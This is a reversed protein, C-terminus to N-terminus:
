LPAADGFGARTKGTTDTMSAQVIDAHGWVLLWAKIRASTCM